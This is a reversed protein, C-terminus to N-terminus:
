TKFTSKKRFYYTLEFPLSFVILAYLADVLPMVILDTAAWILSFTFRQSSFFRFALFFLTSLTSFLFTMIPLTSRKDDFFNRTQGHLIWCVCCYAFPTLGFSHSSSLLDILCGCFFARWLSASRSLRYLSIILYPAFFFLRLKPFFVPCTLICFLSLLFCTSNRIRM